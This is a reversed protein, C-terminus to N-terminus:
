RKRGVYGIIIRPKRVKSDEKIKMKMLRLCTVADEKSDHGGVDEQINIKLLSSALHKLSMRNPPGFKHPFTVSTDIVTKHLLKLAKLDNELSHGILITKDFFHELVWARVDDFTYTAERIKREDIGSFRTCYSLVPSSLSVVQDFVVDENLDIVTLRALELGKTTYCMECDLAYIGADCEAMYCPLKSTEIFGDMCDENRGSWVHYISSECPASDGFGDCCTFKETWQGMERVKRLKGWHYFCNDELLPVGDKDIEFEESCNACIRISPKNPQEKSYKRASKEVFACNPKGPIPMPFGNEKMEAESLLYKSFCRYLSWGYTFDPCSSPELKADEKVEPEKICGNKRLKMLQLSGHNRYSKVSSGTAVELEKKEAESKAEEVSMSKKFEQFSLM